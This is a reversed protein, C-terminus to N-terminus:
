KRKILINYTITKRSHIPISNIAEHLMHHDLAFRDFDIRHKTFLFIIKEEDRRQNRDLETVYRLGLGPFEFDEDFKNNEYYGSPFLFEVGKRHVNFMYFYVPENVSIRFNLPENEFYINKGAVGVQLPRPAEELDAVIIVKCISNEIVEKRSVIKRITGATTYDHEKYYNCYSYEKTDYCFNKKEVTFQKGSHKDLAHKIAKQEALLCANTSNYKDNIPTEGIGTELGALVPLSISLSCAVASRLLLKKLELDGTRPYM